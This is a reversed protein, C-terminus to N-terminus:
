GARGSRQAQVVIRDASRDIVYLDGEPTRIVIRDGEHHWTAAHKVLRDDAGASFVTGSGNKDLSLQERPRRSLPIAGDDPRYVAGEATDEEFVHVWSTAFLRDDRTM